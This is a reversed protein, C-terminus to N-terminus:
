EMMQGGENRESDLDEGRRKEIIRWRWQGSNESGTVM